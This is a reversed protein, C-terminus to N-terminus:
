PIFIPIYVPQDSRIFSALNDVKIGKNKIRKFLAQVAVEDILDFRKTHQISVVSNEMNLRVAHRASNFPNAPLGVSIIKSYPTLFAIENNSVIYISNATEAINCSQWNGTTSTKATVSFVCQSVYKLQNPNVGITKSVSGSMEIKSQPATCGVITSLLVLLFINKMNIRM